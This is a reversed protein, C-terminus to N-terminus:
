LLPAAWWCRWVVEPPLGGAARWAQEAGDRRPARSMWDRLPRSSRAVKKVGAALAVLVCGWSVLTLVHIQQASVRQYLSFIGVTGLAITLASVLEFGLYSLSYRHGRKRCLWRAALMLM